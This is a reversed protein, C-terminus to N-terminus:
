LKTSVAYAIDNDHLRFEKGNAAFKLLSGLASKLEGNTIKLEQACRQLLLVADDLRMIFVTKGIILGQREHPYYVQVKEAKLDVFDGAAIGVVLKGPSFSFRSVKGPFIIRGQQASIDQIGSLNFSQVNAATVLEAKGHWAASVLQAAREYTENSFDQETMIFIM